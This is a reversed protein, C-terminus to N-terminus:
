QMTSQDLFGTIEGSSTLSLRHMARTVAIYLMSRDIETKYNKRGAHPIIVEDFELGKAM